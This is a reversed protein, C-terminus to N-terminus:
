EGTMLYFIRQDILQLHWQQDPPQELGMNVDRSMSQNEFELHFILAQSLNHTLLFCSQVM